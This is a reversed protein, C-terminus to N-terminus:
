QVKEKSNPGSLSSLRGELYQVMPAHGSAREIKLLEEIRSRDLPNERVVQRAKEVERPDPRDAVVSELSKDAIKLDAMASEPAFPMLTQIEEKAFKRLGEHEITSAAKFKEMAAQNGWFEGLKKQVDMAKLQYPSAVKALENLYISEEEGSLGEPTPLSMVEEYFRKSERGVLTLTLVQSTWDASEIAMKALAEAEKLLKTRATMTVALKKQTGADIKSAAIAPEVKKFTEILKLRAFIAGARTGSIGPLATVRKYTAETPNKTYIELALAGIFEPQSKFVTKNKELEALGDKARRVLNAAIAIKLKEDVPTKLYATYFQSPDKSALESFLGLKLLRDEKALSSESLLETARLASDFDLIMEALWVKRKLAFDRDAASLQRVGLMRDAIDRADAFKNLKEALILRNKYYTAKEEDTADAVDFNDLVKWAAENGNQTEKAGVLGVAENLIAKRTLAKFDKEKQPFQLSFEKAWDKMRVDDKLLALADLALDAAQIKLSEGGTSKEMALAKFAVAAEEYKNEDYDLQALQYRVDFRKAKSVSMKLYHEYAQRLKEKEKLTEAAEIAGLLAVELNEHITTSASMYLNFSEAYDTIDFAVKAAWLRMEPENSFRQIYSQYAALLEKTPSKKELKNWDVVLNKLRAKLEVCPNGQQCSQIQPWLALASEFHTVASPMDGLKMKLGAIHVLSELRNEPDAQKSYALEWIAASGALDGLREAEGALYVLNSIRTSDPSLRYLTEVDGSLIKRRVFFTALDRSVEEHFQIDASANQTESGRSLLAKSELIQILQAIAREHAGLNFQSWSIRYAALGKSSPAGDKVVEEFYKMATTYDRSKFKMEGLSFNAESKVERSAKQHSLVQLYSTEAKSAEGLLEQLHGVQILLKAGGDINPDKLAEQYLKVAQARDARGANCEVCGSKLENMADMRARETLLDALRLTVPIKSPDSPALNLQISGLKNILATRSKTELDAVGDAFAFCSTGIAVLALVGKRFTSFGNLNKNPTLDM